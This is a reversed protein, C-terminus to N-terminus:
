MRGYSFVVYIYVNAATRMKMVNLSGGVVIEMMESLVDIM